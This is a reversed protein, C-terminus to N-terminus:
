EEGAPPEKSRLLQEMAVASGDNANTPAMFRAAARAPPSANGVCVGVGALRLMEVDNEADGALSFRPSRPRPPLSVSVHAVQVIKLHVNM